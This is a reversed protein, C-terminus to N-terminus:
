NAAFSFSFVFNILKFSIFNTWVIVMHLFRFYERASIWADPFQYAIRLVLDVIYMANSDKVWNSNRTLCQLWLNVFLAPSQLGYNYYNILQAQIMNGFLEVILGPYDTTILDKAM